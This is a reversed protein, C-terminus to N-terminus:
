FIKVMWVFRRFHVLSRNAVEAGVRTVRSNEDLFPKLLARYEKKIPTQSRTEATNKLVSLAEGLIKKDKKSVERDPKAFKECLKILAAYCAANESAPHISM